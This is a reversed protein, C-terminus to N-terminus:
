YCAIIPFKTRKIFNKLVVKRIVKGGSNRYRIARVSSSVRVIIWLNSYIVVKEFVREYLCYYFHLTSCLQDHYKYSKQFENSGRCITYKITM